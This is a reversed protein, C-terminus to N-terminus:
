KLYDIARKLLEIDDKFGALARNCGACLLGRFRGTDHRHDAQVTARSGAFTIPKDCIACKGGQSKLMTELQLPKIGYKKELYYLKRADRNNKQWERSLERKCPKCYFQGFESSPKTEGCRKCTKTDQM